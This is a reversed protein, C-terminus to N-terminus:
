KQCIICSNINRKVKKAIVALSVPNVASDM